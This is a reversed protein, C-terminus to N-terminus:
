AAAAAPALATALAERSPNGTLTVGDPFRLYPIGPLAEARVAALAARVADAGEDSWTVGADAALRRLVAPDAINLGDTHHARFLREVAAEARGQAAAVAILRHAEFTHSFVAGDHHFELGEAAALATIRAMAPAVDAGFARRLVETKPEGEVTAEPALQYPRFVLDVTGGAARVRAAERTLRAFAFYSWVCPIDLTFEIKM